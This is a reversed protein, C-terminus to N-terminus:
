QLLTGNMAYYVIVAKIGRIGQARMRLAESVIPIGVGSGGYGRGM